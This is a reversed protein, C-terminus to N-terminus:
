RNKQCWREVGALNWTGSPYGADGSRSALCCLSRQWSGSSGSWDRTWFPRKRTLRGRTWYSHTGTTFSAIGNALWDEGLRHEGQLSMNAGWQSGRVDSGKDDPSLDTDRWVPGMYVVWSGAAIAKGYGLAMSAGPAKAKITRTGNDYEYQLWDLWYRKVFGNGLDSGTFPVLLGAYVYANEDGYEAGALALRDAAASQGTLDLLVILLIHKLLRM